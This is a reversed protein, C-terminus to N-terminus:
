VWIRKKFFKIYYKKKYFNLYYDNKSSVSDGKNKRLDELESLIKFFVTKEKRKVVSKKVWSVSTKLIKIKNIKKNKRIWPLIINEGRFMLNTYACIPVVNYLVKYFYLYLIKTKTKTKFNKLCFFFVKFFSNIVFYKKGKKLFSNFLKRLFFFIDHKFFRMKNILNIINVAKINKDRLAKFKIKKIKLKKNFYKKKRDLYYIKKNKKILLKLILYKNVKM